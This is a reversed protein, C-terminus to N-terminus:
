AFAFFLISHHRLISFFFVFSPYPAIFRSWSVLEHFSLSSIFHFDHLHAICYGVLSSFELRM